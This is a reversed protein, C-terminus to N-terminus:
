SEKVEEVKEFKPTLSNAKRFTDINTRAAETATKVAEIQNVKQNEYREILVSVWERVNTETIGDPIGKLVLDM